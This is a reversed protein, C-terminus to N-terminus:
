SGEYKSLYPALILGRAPPEEGSEIARHRARIPERHYEDTEIWFRGEVVAELM